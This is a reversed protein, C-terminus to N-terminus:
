ESGMPLLMFCLLLGPCHLMCILFYLHNVLLSNRFLCRSSGMYSSSYCCQLIDIDLNTHTRRVRKEVCATTTYKQVYLLYTFFRFPFRFLFSSRFHFYYYLNRYIYRLLTCISCNNVLYESLTARVLVKQPINCSRAYLM